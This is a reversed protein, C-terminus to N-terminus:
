IWYMRRGPKDVTLLSIPTSKASKRTVSKKGKLGCEQILLGAPKTKPNKFICGASPFQPQGTRRKELRELILKRNEEEQFRDMKRFGKLWIKTVVYKNGQRKLVSKRYQFKLDTKKFIKFCVKNRRLYFVRVKEVLDSISQGFAGANDVVAGGVTGPIGAAWELGSLGNKLSFNLVRALPVGSDVILHGNRVEIEHLRMLIVLGDYGRDSVLLNSGGAMIFVPLKRKEAWDMILPLEKIDELTFFYRAPGGIKFSTFPALVVNKKIKGSLDM